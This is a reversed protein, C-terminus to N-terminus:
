CPFPTVENWGILWSIFFLENIYLCQSDTSELSPWYHHVSLKPLSKAKRVTLHTKLSLRLIGFLFFSSFAIVEAPCCSSFSIYHMFSFHFQIPCRILVYLYISKSQHNISNTHWYSEESIFKHSLM